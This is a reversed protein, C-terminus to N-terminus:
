TNNQKIKEKEKESQLESIDNIETLEQDEKQKKFNKRIWRETFDKYNDLISM